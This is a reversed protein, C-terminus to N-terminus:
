KGMDTMRDMRSRDAVNELETSSGCRPVQVASGGAQVIGGM